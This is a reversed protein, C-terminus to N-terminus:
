KSEEEEKKADPNPIPKLPEFKKDDNIVVNVPRGLVM